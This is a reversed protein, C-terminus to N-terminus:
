PEALQLECTLLTPNLPQILAIAVSPKPNPDPSPSPNLNPDPDPNMLGHDCEACRGHGLQNVLLTPM